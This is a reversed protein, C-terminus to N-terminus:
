GGFLDLTAIKSLIWFTLGGIGAVVIFFFSAFYVISAMSPLTSCNRATGPLDPELNERNSGRSIRSSAKTAQVPPTEEEWEVASSNELDCSLPSFGTSPESQGTKDTFVCSPDAGVQEKVLSKNNYSETRTGVNGAGRSSKDDCLYEQEISHILKILGGRSGIDFEIRRSDSSPSSEHGKVVLIGPSSINSTYPPKQLVAPTYSMPRNTQHNGASHGTVDSKNRLPDQRNFSPFYHIRSQDRAHADSNDVKGYLVELDLKSACGLSEVNRSFSFKSTPGGKQREANAARLSLKKALWLARENDPHEQLIRALRSEISSDNNAKTISGDSEVSATNSPLSWKQNRISSRVITTTSAYQGSSELNGAMDLKHHPSKLTSKRRSAVAIARTTDSHITGNTRCDNATTDQTKIGTM